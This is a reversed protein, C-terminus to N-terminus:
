PQGQGKGQEQGQQQRREAEGSLAHLGAEGTATAATAALAAGTAVSADGGSHQQTDIADGHGGHAAADADAAGGAFAAAGSENANADADAAGRGHAGGAFAAVGSGHADLDADAAGSGHAAADTDAGGGVVGGREAAVAAATGGVAAGHSAADADAAGGVSNGHAAATAAGYGGAHALASAGAAAAASDTAAPHTDHILLVSEVGGAWLESDLVHFADPQVKCWAPQQLSQEGDSGKGKGKDRGRGKGSAQGSAHGQQRSRGRPGGTLPRAPHSASSRRAQIALTLNAWRRECVRGAHAVRGYGMGALQQLLAQPRKYGAARMLAPAYELLIVGPPHQRLWAESGQVVWGEWGNASLRLAGARVGALRKSLTARQALQECAWPEAAHAVPDGYGRRLGADAADTVAADGGRRLCVTEERAGLPAEHLEVAHEFANHAISARFAAVSRPSAEFAVVRHGRSAAALSFFGLGAGVDVFTGGDGGSGRGSNAVKGDAQGADGRVGNGGSSSEMITEAGAPLANGGDSDTTEGHGGHSAVALAGVLAEVASPQRPTAIGAQWTGWDTLAASVDAGSQVDGQGLADVMVVFPPEFAATVPFHSVHAGRLAEGHSAAGQATPRRTLAAPAAADGPQVFSRILLCPTHAPTLTPTSSGAYSSSISGIWCHHVM